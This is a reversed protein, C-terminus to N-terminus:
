LGEMWRWGWLRKGDDCIFKLHGVDTHGGQGSLQGDLM